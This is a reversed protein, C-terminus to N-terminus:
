FQELSRMNSFILIIYMYPVFAIFVIYEAEKEVNARRLLCNEREREKKLFGM